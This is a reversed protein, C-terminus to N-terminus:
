RRQFEPSGLILGVALARNNPALSSDGLQKEIAARTQASIDTALLQIAIADLTPDQANGHLATADVTTGSINGSALALSFNLRALLASSNIWADAKMSYGTPPQMGYLPMGMKALVAALPQANEVDAGTARLASVVFELPTKVKAREAELSWFEPSHFLTRLVEKVDGDSHLFTKAMREVLAAPPDDSVFRLAIKKSIFYATARNRALMDLAKLGEKEGDDKFRHGLVTKEGPEHYEPRYEFQMDGSRAPTITWGTLVKALETVDRQTYGGSVGLTHLEMIERAYNENLGSLKKAKNQQPPAPFRLRRIAAPKRGGNLAFESHPGISEANDLYFLMAPSKATAVLLDKFKGLAHPRIADREYAPLLYREQHKNIFVNFHNLWFDTMVEELQRDSYTERLLKAQLLETTVVAGPNVTLAIVEERQQPTFQAFVEQRRDPSLARFLATREQDPLALVMKYREDPSKPLFVDLDARGAQRDEPTTHPRKREVNDDAAQTDGQRASQKQRYRAVASEYIARKGSDFLPMAMKGNVLQRVVQPPPYDLALERTSMTLTRFGAIKQAAIPDPISGPHLQQEFWTELGIRRVREADGPRPGFTFRDLAHVIRTNADMTGPLPHNKTKLALAASSALLVIAALSRALKHAFFSRM